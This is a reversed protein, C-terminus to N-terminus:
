FFKVYTQEKLGKISVHKLSLDIMWKLTIEDSIRNLESWHDIVWEFTWKKAGLMFSFYDRTKSEQPRCHHCCFGITPLFIAPIVESWVQDCECCCTMNPWLGQLQIVKLLFLLQFFYQEKRGMSQSQIELLLLFKKVVQYELQYVDKSGLILTETSTTTQRLVLLMFILAEYAFYNHRIKEHTWQQTWDSLTMLSGPKIRSNENWQIETGLVVKAPKQKKPNAQANLLLVSFLKGSPLLLEAIVNREQYPVVHTVISTLM